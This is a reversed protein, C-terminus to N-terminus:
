QPGQNLYQKAYSRAQEAPYGMNVYYAELDALSYGGVSGAAAQATGQPAASYGVVGQPAGYGGAPAGGQYGQPAGYGGGRPAGGYGGQPANYGAPAGYGHAQGYADYGGAAPPYGQPAGGYGGRPGYAGPYGAGAPAAGTSQYHQNVYGDIMSRAYGIADPPGILTVERQPTTEDRSIQLRVGTQQQIMKITQGGRGIILGVAPHPVYITFGSGGPGGHGGHGGHREEPRRMLSTILQDQPVSGPNDINRVLLDIDRKAAAVQDPQGVLTIERTTSGPAIDTDRQIQVTAGTKIQLARITEGKRGIITGVATNPVVMVETFAGAAVVVNGTAPDVTAAPQQTIVREVQARANPLDSAAGTLTVVRVSSGPEAERAINIRVRTLDQLMRITDGNRGIVFGVKDNPIEMTESSTGSASGAGASGYVGSPASSASHAQENAKQQHEQSRRFFDSARTDMTDASYLGQPLEVIDEAAASASAPRPRKSDHAVSDADDSSKAAAYPSPDAIVNKVEAEANTLTDEPADTNVVILVGTSSSTAPSPTLYICVKHKSEISSKANSFVTTWDTTSGEPFSVTATTRGELAEAAPPYLSSVASSVASEHSRKLDSGHSSSTSVNTAPANAPSAPADM